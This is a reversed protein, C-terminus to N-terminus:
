EFRSRNSNTRVGGACIHIGAKAADDIMRQFPYGIIKNVTVGYLQTTQM